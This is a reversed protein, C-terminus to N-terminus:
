LGLAKRGYVTAINTLEQTDYFRNAEALFRLEIYMDGDILPQYIDALNDVGLAVPIGAALLEPVPAISNHIHTEGEVPKMSLAASPCCVVSMGASKMVHYMEKRLKTPQAALSVAHIAVVKGEVNHEITKLALMMTDWERPNNEQDIHVHVMKGTERAWKLLIDVHKDAQPRDKSPLGGIIDVYELSKEAWSRAVPDLVGKLVQNILVLNFQKAFKKKVAVAAKIARLETLPDIDIFTACTKVGQAIMVRVAKEIRRAFEEESTKKKMEDVLTWKEEMRAHAQALIKPSVTYARDFHAHCNVFGGKAEIDSLLASKFNSEDKMNNYTELNESM